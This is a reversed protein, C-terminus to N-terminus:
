FVFFDHAVSLSFDFLCNFHFQQKDLLFSLLTLVSLSLVLKLDFFHIVNLELKFLVVLFFYLSKLGLVCSLQFVCLQFHVSLSKCNSLILM